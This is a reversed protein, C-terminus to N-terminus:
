TASRTTGYYKEQAKELENDREKQQKETLTRGAALEWEHIPCSGARRTLKNKFACGCIKCSMKAPEAWECDACVKLRFRVEGNSASRLLGVPDRYVSKALRTAKERTSVQPKSSEIADNRVRMRLNRYSESQLDVVLWDGADHVAIEHLKEWSWQPWNEIVNDEEWLFYRM